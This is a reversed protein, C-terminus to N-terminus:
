YIRHAFRDTIEQGGNEFRHDEYDTWGPVFYDEAVRQENLYLEFFGLGCIVIEAADIAPTSFAGRIYPQDCGPEPALWKASGFMENHTMQFDGKYFINM